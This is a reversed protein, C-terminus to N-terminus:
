TLCQEVPGGVAYAAAIGGEAAKYPEGAVYQDNFYMRESSDMTPSVAYAEPRQTREYTYPRIMANSEPTQVKNGQMMKTLGMTGLGVAASTAYPHQVAYDKVGQISPNQMLSGLNQM